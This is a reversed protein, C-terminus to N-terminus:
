ACLCGAGMLRAYAQYLLEDVEEDENGQWTDQNDRTIADVKKFRGLRVVAPLLVPLSWVAARALLVPCCRRSVSKGADACADCVCACLCPM